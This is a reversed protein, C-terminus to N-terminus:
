LPLNNKSQIRGSGMSEWFEQLYISCFGM